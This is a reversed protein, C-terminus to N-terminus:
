EIFSDNVSMNGGAVELRHRVYGGTEDASLPQLRYRISIRQALQKMDDHKLLEEFELQGVLIIQLLKEKDSELNSLMRLEELTEKPLNQAEDIIIITKIGRAANELLNDRFLRLLKEKSMQEIEDMNFVHLDDLIVRLLESPSLTPNLVLALNVKDGLQRLLTRVLLTKGSGPNGTILVFGEGANISFVMTDLAEKHVASPFFYDPDPTLRFPADKLHFFEEYSM